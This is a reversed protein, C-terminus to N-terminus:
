KEVQGGGSLTAEPTLSNEMGVIPLGGLLLYSYGRLRTHKQQVLM